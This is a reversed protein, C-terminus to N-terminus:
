REYVKKRPGIKLIDIRLSADDLALIVRYNGVRQHFYPYGECRDAYRYPNEKIEEIKDIIRKATSKSLRSLQKQAKDTWQLSYSM